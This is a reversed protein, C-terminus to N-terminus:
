GLRQFQGIFKLLESGILPEEEIQCSSGDQSTPREGMLSFAGLSQPLRPLSELHSTRGSGMPLGVEEGHQRLAAALDSVEGLPKGYERFRQSDDLLGPYPNVLRFHM